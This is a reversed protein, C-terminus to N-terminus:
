PREQKLKEVKARFERAKDALDGYDANGEVNSEVYKFLEIAKDLHQANAEGLAKYYYPTMWTPAKAIEVEALSLVQSWQHQSALELTKDYADRDGLTGTTSGPKSIRQEGNLFYTTVEKAPDPNM